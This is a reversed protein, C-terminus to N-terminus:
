KSGVEEMKRGGHGEVSDKRKRSGHKEAKEEPRNKEKSNCSFLPYMIQLCKRKEKPRNKHATKRCCKQRCQGEDSQIASSIFRGCVLPEGELPMENGAIASKGSDPVAAPPLSVTRQFLNWGRRGSRAQGRKWVYRPPPITPSPSRSGATM